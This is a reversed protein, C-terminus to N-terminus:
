VGDIRRTIVSFIFIALYFLSIQAAIIRCMEGFSSECTCFIKRFLKRINILPKRFNVSMHVDFLTRGFDFITRGFSFCM